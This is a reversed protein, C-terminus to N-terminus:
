MKQINITKDGAQQQQIKSNNSSSINNANKKVILRISGAVYLTLLFSLISAIGSIINFIKM